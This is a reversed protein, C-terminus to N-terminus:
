ALAPQVADHKQGVPRVGGAGDRFGAHQLGAQRSRRFRIAGLDERNGEAVAGVTLGQVADRMLGTTDDKRGIGARDVLGIEADRGLLSMIPDGRGLRIPGSTARRRRSAMARCLVSTMAAAAKKATSVTKRRSKAPPSPRGPQVAGAAAAAPM